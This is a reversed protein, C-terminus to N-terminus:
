LGKELHKAISRDLQQQLWLPLTDSNITMVSSSAASDKVVEDDDDGDSRVPQVSSRCIDQKNFM